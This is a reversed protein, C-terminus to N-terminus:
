TGPSPLSWSRPPAPACRPRRLSACRNGPSVAQASPCAPRAATRPATRTGDGSSVVSRGQVGLTHNRVPCPAAALLDACELLLIWNECGALPSQCAVGVPSLTSLSQEVNM